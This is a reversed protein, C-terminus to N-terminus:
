ETSTVTNVISTPSLASGCEQLSQWVNDTLVDAIPGNRKQAHVLKAIAAHTSKSTLTELVTQLSPATVRTACVSCHTLDENCRGAIVGDLVRSLSQLVGVCKEGGSMVEYVLRQAPPASTTGASLFTVTRASSAAHLVDQPSAFWSDFDGGCEQRWEKAPAIRYFVHGNTRTMNFLNCCYTSIARGLPSYKTPLGGFTDATTPLVLSREISSYGPRKYRLKSGEGRAGVHVTVDWPCPEHQSLALPDFVDCPAAKIKPPCRRGFGHGCNVVTFQTQVTVDHLRRGTIATVALADALAMATAIAPLSTSQLDYELEGDALIVDVELRASVNPVGSQLLHDIKQTWRKTFSKLDEFWEQALENVHAMAQSATAKGASGDIAASAFAGIALPSFGHVHRYFPALSDETVFARALLSHAYANRPAMTQRTFPCRKTTATLVVGVFGSDLAARECDVHACAVPIAEQQTAIVVRLVPVPPATMPFSHRATRTVRIARRSLSDIHGFGNANYLYESVSTAQVNTCNVCRRM